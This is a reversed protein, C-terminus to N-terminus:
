PVAFYGHASAWRRGADKLLSSGYNLYDEAMCKDGYETLVGVLDKEMGSNNLKTALLILSKQDGSNWSLSLLQQCLSMKVAKPNASCLKNYVTRGNETQLFIWQYSCFVVERDLEAFQEASVTQMLVVADDYSDKSAFLSFVQLREENSPRWRLYHLSRMARLRIDPTEHKNRAIESLKTLNKAREWRDVQNPTTFCGTIFSVSVLLGVVGGNWVRFVCSRM